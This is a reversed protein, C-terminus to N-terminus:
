SSANSCAEAVRAFVGQASDTVSQDTETVSHDSDTVSLHQQAQHYVQVTLDFDHQIAKPITDGLTLDRWIGFKKSKRTQINGTEKNVRWLENFSFCWDGDQRMPRTDNKKVKPKRRRYLPKPKGNPKPYLQYVGSEHKKSLRKLLGAGTLEGLCNCVTQPSMRVWKRLTNISIDMTIGTKWNSYLKLLIWILAAKWSIDGAFLRELIGGQGRPVAFKLPNGNKDTPIESYGCNHHRIQYISGTNTGIRLTQLWDNDQLSTLIDRVYRISLGTVEALKRLSTKWTKGNDWNGRYNLVTLLLCEASTLNGLRLESLASDEGFPVQFTTEATTHPINAETIKPLEPAELHQCTSFTNNLIGIKATANQVM